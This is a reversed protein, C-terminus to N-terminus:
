EDSLPELESPGFDFQFHNEEGPEVTVQTRFVGLIKEEVEVEDGEESTAQESSDVQEAIRIEVDQPGAIAGVASVIRFEGDKVYGSATPANAIDDTRPMFQIGAGQVPEGNISATGTVEYRAPGASGGCGILVVFLVLPLLRELSSANISTMFFSEIGVFCILRM